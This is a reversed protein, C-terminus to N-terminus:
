VAKEKKSKSPKTEQEAKAEQEAEIEQNATLSSPPEPQSRAPQDSPAQNDKAENIERQKKKADWEAKREAKLRAKEAREAEEKAIKAEREAQRKAEYDSLAEKLTQSIAEGEVGLAKLTENLKEGDKIFSAIKDWRYREVNELKFPINDIRHRRVYSEYVRKSIGLANIRREVNLLTEIAEKADGLALAGYEGPLSGFMNERILAFRRDLDIAQSVLARTEGSSQTVVVSQKPNNILRWLQNAVYGNKGIFDAFNFRKLADIQEQRAERRNDGGNPNNSRNSQNSRNDNINRGRANANDQQDNAM